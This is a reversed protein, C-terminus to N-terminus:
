TAFTWEAQRMVTDRERTLSRARSRLAANEDPPPSPSGKANDASHIETFRPSLSYLLASLFGPHAGALSISGARTFRSRTICYILSRNRAREDEGDIVPREDYAKERRWEALSDDGKGRSRSKESKKNKRRKKKKKMDQKEEKM